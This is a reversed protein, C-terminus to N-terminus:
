SLRNKIKQITRKIPNKSLNGYKLWYAVEVGSDKFTTKVDEFNLNKKEFEKLEWVKLVMVLHSFAQLLSLALGHVGDEYGRHAFFRSLFEGLPKKILDRWEFDYGDNKLERAQIDTYRNLKNLFQGVSNYHYHTIAYREEPFLTLGQGQTKPKSHIKNSWSVTDRKFFRINNDPWWMAAKMWKGFIINKRPIEVHTVVGPKSIIEKLKVGLSEPIEEDPDLILIWDHSSKSIALNRAPEVFNLRKHLIIKAGQKKAIVATNDDSHMDCVLVEDAWSVSKIAREIIAEENFTNIVVSIKPDM